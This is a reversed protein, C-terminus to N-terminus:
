GHGMEEAVARAVARWTERTDHELARWPVGQPFRAKRAAAALRDIGAHTGAHERAVKLIEGLTVRDTWEHEWSCGAWPCQIHIESYDPGWGWVRMGDVTSM